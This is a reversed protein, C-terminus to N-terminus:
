KRTVRYRPTTLSAMLALEILVRAFIQNVGLQHCLWIAFNRTRIQAGPQNKFCFRPRLARNVVVKTNKIAGFYVWSRKPCTSVSKLTLWQHWCGSAHRLDYGKIEWRSQLVVLPIQKTSALGFRSSIFSLQGPTLRTEINIIVLCLTVGLLANKWKFM